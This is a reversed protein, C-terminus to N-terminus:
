TRWGCMCVSIYQMCLRECVMVPVVDFCPSSPKGERFGLDKKGRLIILHAGQVLHTCAGYEPNRVERTPQVVHGIYAMWVHLGIYTAHM